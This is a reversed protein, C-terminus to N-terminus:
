RTCKNWHLSYWVIRVPCIWHWDHEPLLQSGLKLNSLLCELPRTNHFDLCWAVQEADRPDIDLFLWWRGTRWQTNPQICVTTSQQGAEVYRNKSSSCTVHIAISIWPSHTNPYKGWSIYEYSGVYRINLYTTFQIKMQIRHLPLHAPVMHNDKGYKWLINMYNQYRM